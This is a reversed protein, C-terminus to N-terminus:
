SLVHANICTPIKVNNDGDGAAVPYRILSQLCNIWNHSRCRLRGAAIQEQLAIFKSVGCKAKWINLLYKWINAKIPFLPQLRTRFQVRLIERSMFFGTLNAVRQCVTLALM